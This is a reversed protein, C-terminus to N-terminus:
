AGNEAAPHGFLHDPAESTQHVLSANKVPVMRYRFLGGTVRQREVERSGYKEKRLDRLRASVSAESGGVVFAIDNLTRWGGDSMLQFVRWLQGKLRSHDEEAEYTKGDFAEAKPPDPLTSAFTFLDTM